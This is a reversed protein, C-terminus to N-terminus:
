RADRGNLLEAASMDGRHQRGVCWRIALTLLLYALPALLIALWIM